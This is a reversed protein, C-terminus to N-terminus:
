YLKEPKKNAIPWILQEPILFLVQNICTCRNVLIDIFGANTYLNCILDHCNM